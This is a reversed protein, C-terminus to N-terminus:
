KACEQRSKLEDLLAQKFWTMHKVNDFIQCSESAVDYCISYKRDILYEVIQTMRQKLKM